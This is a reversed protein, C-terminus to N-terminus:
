HPNTLAKVSSRSGGIGMYITRDIAFQQITQLISFVFVVFIPFFLAAIEMKREDKLEASDKETRVGGWIVLIEAVHPGGGSPVNFLNFKGVM